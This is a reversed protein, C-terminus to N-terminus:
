RSERSLARGVLHIQSVLAVPVWPAGGRLPPDACAQALRNRHRVLLGPLAALAAPQLHFNHFVRLDSLRLRQDAWQLLDDFLRTLALDTAPDPIAHFPADLVQPRAERLDKLIPWVTEPAWGLAEAIPQASRLGRGLLLRVLLHELRTRARFTAGQGQKEAHSEQMGVLEDLRARRDDVTRAQHYAFLRRVYLAQPPTLQFSREFLAFDDEDIPYHRGLEPYRLYHLRSVKLGATVLEQGTSPRRTGRNAALAASLWTEPRAFAFPDAGATSGGTPAGRATPLVVRTPPTPIEVASGAERRLLLGLLAIQVVGAATQHSADGDAGCAELTALAEWGLTRAEAMTEWGWAILTREPVLGLHLTPGAGAPGLLLGQRARYLIERRFLAESPGPMTVQAERTRLGGDENRLLHGRAELGRLTDQIARPPAVHGLATALRRPDPVFGPCQAASYLAAGLWTGLPDADPLYLGRILGPTHATLTLPRLRAKLADMEARFRQRKAPSRTRQARMWWLMWRTWDEDLGLAHFLRRALGESPHRHPQRLFNSLTAGHCGAAEALAERTPFAGSKLGYRVLRRVWTRYDSVGEPSPPELPLPPRGRLRKEPAPM